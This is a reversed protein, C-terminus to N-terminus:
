ATAGAQRPSPKDVLERHWLELMMLGWLQRGYDRRGALHDELLGRVGDARFYGRGLTAPDTLVETICGRLEGRFWAGAM